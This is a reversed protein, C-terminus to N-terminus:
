GVLQSAFSTWMRKRVVVLRLFRMSRAILDGRLEQHARSLCSLQQKGGNTYDTRETGFM